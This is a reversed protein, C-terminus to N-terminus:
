DKRSPCSSDPRPQIEGSCGTCGCCGGSKRRFRSVLYVCAVFIVGVTLLLDYNM